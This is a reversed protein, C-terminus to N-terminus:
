KSKKPKPKSLVAAKESPNFKKYDRPTKDLTPASVKVVRGPIMKAITAPISGLKKLGSNTVKMPDNGGARAKAQVTQQKTPKAPM